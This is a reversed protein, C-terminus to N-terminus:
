RGDIKKRERVIDLLKGRFGNNQEAIKDRIFILKAFNRPDRAFRGNQDKTMAFRM